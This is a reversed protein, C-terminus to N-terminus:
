VCAPPGRPRARFFAGRIAVERVVSVTEVVLECEDPLGVIAPGDTVQSLVSCVACQHEDHQSAPSDGGESKSESEAIAPKHHECGFPCPVSRDSESASVLCHGDECCGDCEQGLHVFKGVLLVLMALIALWRGATQSFSTPSLTRM